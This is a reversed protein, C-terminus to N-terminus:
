TAPFATVSRWCSWTGSVLEEADITQEHGDRVVKCHPVLMRQLAEIAREAKWEQVFGLVGNLVVIVMITIADAMEGVAVSIVAALILIFILVDVFQRALVTYWHVKRGTELTNPGQQQLRRAAEGTSLGHRSDTRLGTLVAEADMSHWAPAGTGGTPSTKQQREDPM